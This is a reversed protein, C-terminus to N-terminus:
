PYLKFTKPQTYPCVVIELCQPMLLVVMAAVALQMM